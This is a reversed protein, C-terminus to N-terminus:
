LFEDLGEIGSSFMQKITLVSQESLAATGQEYTGAYQFRLHGHLPVRVINERYNAPMEMASALPIKIAISSNAPISQINSQLSYGQSLLPVESVSLQLNTLSVHNTNNVTLSVTGPQGANVEGYLDVLVPSRKVQRCLSSFGVVVEEPFLGGHSGIIGQNTTYSYASLSGAGRVVSIDSPLAFRDPELVAFRPDDTRGLGMRGQLDLEPPPNSIQTTIGMIQGHDSAIVVQLADPEPYEEMCFQIREAIMKLTLTRERQYLSVWDTQHHFLEDFQITDWCYIRYKKRRLDKYLKDIQKDTYRKGQSFTFGKGADSNPAAKDPLRQSYLSWKAFETKTPLISFLPQPEIDLKLKLDKTLYAILEQHDLWGLGDV